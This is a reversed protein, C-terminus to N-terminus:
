PGPDSTWVWRGDHGCGSGRACDGDLEAQTCLRAGLGTCLDVAEHHTVSNYCVGALPSEAYPCSTTRKRFGPLSTDSCCRIAIERGTGGISEYNSNQLTAPLGSCAGRRGCTVWHFSTITPESSPVNTPSRSPSASPTGSPMSTPDMSPAPSVTPSTSPSSTTPSPTPRKSPARTPNKTPPKSPARTPTSSPDISPFFTPTGSFLGSPQLSPIESPLSTPIWSPTMSPIPTTPAMTPAISPMGTPSLSPEGTPARTPLASPLGTPISSGQATPFETPSFSPIDSPIDTPASTSILSKATVLKVISFTDSLDLHNAINDEEASILAIIDIFRVNGKLFLDLKVSVRHCNLNVFDEEICAEDPPVRGTVFADFIVFRWAEVLEDIIVSCGALSPVIKEQIADLFEDLLPEMMTNNDKLVVEVGLEFDAEDMTERGAITQNAAIAMCDSNSPPEYILNELPSSSPAFTTSNESSSPLGPPSISVKTPSNTPEQINSTRSESELSGGENQFLFYWVAVGGGILFLLLLFVAVRKKQSKKPKEQVAKDSSSRRRKSVTEPDNPMHFGEMAESPIDKRFPGRRRRGPEANSGSESDTSDMSVRRAVPELANDESGSEIGETLPPMISSERDVSEVGPLAAASASAGRGRAMRAKAKADTDNNGYLTDVTSSTRVTDDVSQAGPSRPIFESSRAKAKSDAESGYLTSIATHTSNDRYVTKVGPSTTSTQSGRAAKAKRKTDADHEDGYLTDIATSSQSTRTRTSPSSKEHLVRDVGPVSAPASAKAKAKADADSGYLTSTTTVSSHKSGAVSAAGPISARSAAAKTKAKVDADDSGYLTHISRSTSGATTSNSSSKSSGVHKVGPTTITRGSSGRQSAKAKAKADEDDRYLTDVASSSGDSSSMQTKETSSQHSSSHDVEGISRHYYDHSPVEDEENENVVDLKGIGDTTKKRTSSRSSSDSSSTTSSSHRLRSSRRSDSRHSSSRESSSRKYSSRRNSSSSSSSGSSSRSSAIIRESNSKSHSPRSSPSSSSSSSEEEEGDEGHRKNDTSSRRSLHRSSGNSDRGQSSRRSSHRKRQSSRRSSSSSSPHHHHHHHHKENLKSDQHTEMGDIEALKSPLDDM